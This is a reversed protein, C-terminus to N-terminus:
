SRDLSFDCWSANAPPRKLICNTVYFSPWHNISLTPIVQCPRHGLNLFCRAINNSMQVRLAYQLTDRTHSAALLQAHTYCRIIQRGDIEFVTAIIEYNWRGGALQRLLHPLPTPPPPPPSLCQGHTMSHCPRLEVANLIGAWHKIM